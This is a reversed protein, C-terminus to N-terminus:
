EYYIKIFLPVNNLKSFLILEDEKHQGYYVM